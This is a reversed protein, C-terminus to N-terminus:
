GEKALLIMLIVEISYMMFVVVVVINHEHRQPPLAQPQYMSGEILLLEVMAHHGRYAACNLATNGDCNAIDVDAQTAPTAHVRSSLADADAFAFARPWFVPAVAACM